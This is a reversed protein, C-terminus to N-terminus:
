NNKIKKDILNCVNYFNEKVEKRTTSINKFNINFHKALYTYLHNMVKILFEEDYNSNIRDLRNLYLCLSDYISYQQFDKSEIKNLDGYIAKYSPTIINKIYLNSTNSWITKMQEYSIFILAQIALDNKEYKGIKLVEEQHELSTFRIIKQNHNIKLYENIYEFINHIEKYFDSLNSNPKKTIMIDVDNNLNVSGITGFTLIHNTKLLKQKLIKSIEEWTYTRNM